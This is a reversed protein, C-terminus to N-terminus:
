ITLNRKIYSIVFLILESIGFWFLIDIVLGGYNTKRTLAPLNCSKPFDSLNTTQKIEIPWGKDQENIDYSGGSDTSPIGSKYCTLNIAHSSKLSVSLSGLTFALAMVFALILKKTLRIKRLSHFNDLALLM